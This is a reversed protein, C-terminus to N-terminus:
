LGKFEIKADTVVSAWETGDVTETKWISVSMVMLDSGVDDMWRLISIRQKSLGGPKCEQLKKVTRGDNTTEVFTLLEVRNVKIVSVVGPSSLM